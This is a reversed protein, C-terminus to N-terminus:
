VLGHMLLHLPKLRARAGPLDGLVAKSDTRLVPWVRHTQPGARYRSAGTAFDIGSSAM